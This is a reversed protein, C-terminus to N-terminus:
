VPPYSGRELPYASPSEPCRSGAARAWGGTEAGRALPRNATTSGPRRPQYGDEGPGGLACARLLATVVHCRQASDIWSVRDLSRWSLASDRHSPLHNHGYTIPYKSVKEELLLVSPPCDSNKRTAGPCRRLRGGEGAVTEDGACALGADEPGRARCMASGHWAGPRQTRDRERARAHRASQLM